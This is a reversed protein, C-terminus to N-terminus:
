VQRSYGWRCGGYWFVKLNDVRMRGPAIAGSLVTAQHVKGCEDPRLGLRIGIKEGVFKIKSNKYWVEKGQM